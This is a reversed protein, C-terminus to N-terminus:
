VERLLLGGNVIHDEDSPHKKLYALVDDPRYWELDWTDRDQSTTYFGRLADGTCEPKACGIMIPVPGPSVDKTIAVNGCARCVYRNFVPRPGNENYEQLLTEVKVLIGKERKTLKPKPAKVPPLPTNETKPQGPGSVGANTGTLADIVEEPPGDFTGEINVATSQPYTGAGGTAKKSARKTTKRKKTM